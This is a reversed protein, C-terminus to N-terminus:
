PLISVSGGSYYYQELMCRAVGLSVYDREQFGLAKQFRKVAAETGEGYKGDITGTYYGLYKLIVQVWRAGLTTRPVMDRLNSVIQRMSGYADNQMIGDMGSYFGGVYVPVINNGLYQHLANIVNQDVVGTHGPYGMAQMFDSIESMTQNGLNGTVDWQYGQYWVGTAKLQTQMWFVVMNMTDKRFVTRGIDPIGMDYPDNGDALATGTVGFALSSILLVSLLLSLFRKM